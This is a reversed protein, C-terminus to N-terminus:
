CQGVLRWDVGVGVIFQRGGLERKEVAGRNM